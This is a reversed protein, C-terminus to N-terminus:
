NMKDNYTVELFVTKTGCKIVACSFAFQYLTKLTQLAGM